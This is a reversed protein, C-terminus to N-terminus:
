AHLFPAQPLLHQQVLTHYQQSVDEVGLHALSVLGLLMISLLRLILVNLVISSLILIIILLPLQLALKPLPVEQLPPQFLLLRPQMDPLLM